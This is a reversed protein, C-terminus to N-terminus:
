DQALQRQVTRLSIGLRQATRSRNGGELALAAHLVQRVIEDLPRNLRVEIVDKGTPGNGERSDASASVQLEPPFDRGRVEKGARLLSLLEIVNRLERVNGPWDYAHLVAMAARTIRPSRTGHKACMQAIFQRVLLSIDARRDRLPPVNLSIGQIRYYLDARFRGSKVEQDLPRLTACILRTDVSIKTIGGVRMFKRNELFRLLKAQVGIPMEGIEDLFLTGDHSAEIKGRAKESAGTFAGKEHGFLESEFLAEPIAACNIPIFPGARRHSLDHVRRALVEKGTGSEGVLSVGVDKGAVARLTADLRRMAVSRMVPQLVVDIQRRGAMAQAM